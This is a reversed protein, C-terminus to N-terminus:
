AGSGIWKESQGLNHGKHELPGVGDAEYRAWLVEKKVNNGNGSYTIKHNINGYSNKHATQMIDFKDASPDKDMLQFYINPTECVGTETLCRILMLTSIFHSKHVFDKLKVEFYYHEHGRDNDGASSNEQEHRLLKQAFDILHVHTTNDIFQNQKETESAQEEIFTCPFGMENIDAIL